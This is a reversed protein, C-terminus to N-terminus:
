EQLIRKKRIVRRAPAPRRRANVVLLAVTLVLPVLLMLLLPEYTM